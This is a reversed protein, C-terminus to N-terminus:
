DATLLPRPTLQVGPMLRRIRRLLVPRSRLDQRVVRMVRWGEEEVADQRRKERIVADSATGNSGYKTVGDYECLLGAERWGLDSWFTGAPTSVCIQTEPVPLGLVLLTFRLTTEGPSESGADALTLIERAQVVGRQGARSRLIEACAAPDAGVHLAADAVILAALPPLAQACDVLTHELTTVPLGHRLTSQRQSPRGHHRAIDPAGHGTPRSSQAVHIQTPVSRLPLGWLLAASARTFTLGAAAQDAVAVIRALALRRRRAYIAEGPVTDVYAGPRVQVWEGRRVRDAIHPRPYHRSLHVAPLPARDLQTPSPPGPRRPVLRDQAWAAWWPLAM